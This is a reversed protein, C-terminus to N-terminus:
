KKWKQFVLVLRPNARVSWSPQHQQSFQCGRPPRPPRLLLRFTLIIDHQSLHISLRRNESQKSTWILFNLYFPVKHTAPWFSCFFKDPLWDDCSDRLDEKSSIRKLNFYKLRHIRPLNRNIMITWDSQIIYHGPLFHFFIFSGLFPTISLSSSSTLQFFMSQFAWIFGNASQVPSGHLSFPPFQSVNRKQREGWWWQVGNLHPLNKRKKQLSVGPSVPLM